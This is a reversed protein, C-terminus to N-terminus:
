RGSFLFGMIEHRIKESLVEGVSVLDYADEIQDRSIYIKSHIQVHFVVGGTLEDWSAIVGLGIMQSLSEVKVNQEDTLEDM